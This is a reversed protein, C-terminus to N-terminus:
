PVPSLIFSPPQTAPARRTSDGLQSLRGAPVPILRATSCEILKGRPRYLFRPPLL